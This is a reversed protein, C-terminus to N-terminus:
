VNARERIFKPLEEFRKVLKGAFPTFNSFTSAMAKDCRFLDCDYAYCFHMLDFIDSREFNYGPKLIREIYHRFHGARGLGFAAEIKEDFSAPLQPTSLKKTVQRAEKKDVGADILKERTQLRGENILSIRKIMELIKSIENELTRLQSGFFKDLANPQKGYDYFIRSFEEPDFAWRSLREEFEEDSCQGKLIRETLRSEVIEDSVPIGGYDERKRGWTAGQKRLLTELGISKLKRREQRNLGEEALKNQFRIRMEKKFARASVPKENAAFIWNGGNPFKAGKVLEALIPFANRGCIQKIIAGRRVREDRYDSSPKTIVEVITAFSYGLSVLGADRLEILEHMVDNKPGTEGEYFISLYDQTDLYAVLTM